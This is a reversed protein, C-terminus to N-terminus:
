DQKFKVARDRKSKRLSTQKPPSTPADFDPAHLASTDFQVIESAVSPSNSATTPTTTAASRKNKRPTLGSRQQGRWDAEVPTAVDVLRFPLKSRTLLINVDLEQLRKRFDIHLMGAQPTEAEFEAVYLGHVHDVINALIEPKFFSWVRTLLQRLESVGMSGLPAGNKMRPERNRKFYTKLLAFVLEVPDWSPTKVPLYVIVHPFGFKRIGEEAAMLQQANLPPRKLIERMKELVIHKLKVPAHSHKKGTEIDYYQEYLKALPQDSDEEYCCKLFETARELTVGSAWVDFVGQQLCTNYPANDSIILAPCTLQRLAHRFLQQMTEHNMNKKYTSATMEALGELEAATAKSPFMYVGGLGFAMKEDAEVVDRGLTGAATKVAKIHEKLVPTGKPLYFLNNNKGYDNPEWGVFGDRSVFTLVVYREGGKGDFIEEGELDAWIKKEKIALNIWTEDKSVITRRIKLMWPELAFNPNPVFNPQPPHAARAIHDWELMVENVMIEVAFNRRSAMKEDDTHLTSGQAKNAERTTFSIHHKISNSENVCHFAARVQADTCDPVPGPSSKAVDQFDVDERFLAMTQPNSVYCL